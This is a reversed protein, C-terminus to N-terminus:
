VLKRAGDFANRFDLYVPKESELTERLLAQQLKYKVDGIALAGIGVADPSNTAHTLPAGFDMLKVGEIGLPSVANVDGAVKLKTADRLVSANLVQVGAKAACFVIDADYLLRAKDADSAATTGRLDVDYRKKAEAAFELATDISFHDVIATEAGQLAAIVATAIGVPGTGGFVVAKAGKLEQKFKNKLEREVCAVLAAATTFAGSPDAFVSIEFPPVMSKKASELMDMALGIDRGGIFMGTKKVGSPGRSFIADQTLGAVENLEVHSYPILVDYGADLAMNIDFPSNHKMPNLMHIISRKSM